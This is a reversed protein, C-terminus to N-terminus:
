RNKRVLRLTKMEVQKEHGEDMYHMNLIIEKLEWGSLALDAPEDKYSDIKLRWRYKEEIIGEEKGDGIEHRIFLEDIVKRGYVTAETRMSSKAELRLGHSFIELLTVVGLGVIAMAVVVELLAFGKHYWNTKM